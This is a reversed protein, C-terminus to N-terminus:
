RLMDPVSQKFIDLLIAAATGALVGTLLPRRRLPIIRLQAPFCPANTAMEM